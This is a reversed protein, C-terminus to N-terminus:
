SADVQQSVQIRKNLFEEDLSYVRRNNKKSRRLVGTDYLSKLVRNVQAESIGDMLPQIDGASLPGGDSSTFIALVRDFHRDAAEAEKAVDVAAQVSPHEIMEGLGGQHSSFKQNRLQKNERELEDVRDRLEDVRNDQGAEIANVDVGLVERARDLQEEIREAQEVRDEISSLREVEELLEDAESRVDDLEAQLSDREELLEQIRENKEELVEQQEIGVSESSAGQLRSTLLDLTEDATKLREIEKELESIVEDKEELRAELRSIKDQRERHESTIAELEDALSSSISKLEPREVDDLGPTAGADFTQKRNFQVQQIDIESWDAQVFGEGDALDQVADAYEDGVVRKVVDTDNDWTLRHWILLDAQTIFDKKVDAPRQSLGMIGLGHKRGRKAVRVLAEGADSMGGRQPIYEHIEEVVLLFPTRLDQERTFLEWATNRILEDATSTDLYGSVDLVIPVRQELALEALKGAHEPGVQLDCEETAGVHLIEYQEKLGWYEGEVDVILVPHGRDLLQEIIVSASNSKGAGSKGCIFSRGTLIEEIPLTFPKNDTRGVTIERTQEQTSM